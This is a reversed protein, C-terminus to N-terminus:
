ENMENAEIRCGIYNLQGYSNWSYFNYFMLSINNLWPGKVELMIVLALLVVVVVVLVKYDWHIFM